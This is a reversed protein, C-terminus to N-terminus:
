RQIVDFGGDDRLSINGDAVAQAYIATKAFGGFPYYHFHALKCNDDAAM